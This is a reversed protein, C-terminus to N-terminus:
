KRSMVQFHSQPPLLSCGMLEITHAPVCQSARHLLSIRESCKGLITNGTRERYKISKREIRGSLEAYVVLFPSLEEIGYKMQWAVNNRTMLCFTGPLFFVSTPRRSIARLEPLLKGIISKPHCMTLEFISHHERFSSENRLFCISISSWGKLEGDLSQSAMAAIVLNPCGSLTKDIGWQM